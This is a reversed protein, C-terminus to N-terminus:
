DDLFHRYLTTSRFRDTFPILGHGGDFFMQSRKELDAQSRRRRKKSANQGDGRSFATPHEKPVSCLLPRAIQVASKNLFHLRM